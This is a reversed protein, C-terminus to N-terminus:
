KDVCSGHDPVMGELRSVPRKRHRDSSVKHEVAQKEARAVERKRHRIAASANRLTEFM